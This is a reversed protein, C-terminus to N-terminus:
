AGCRIKTIRATPYFQSSPHPSNEASLVSDGLNSCVNKPAAGVFAARPLGSAEYSAFTPQVTPSAVELCGFSLPAIELATIHKM